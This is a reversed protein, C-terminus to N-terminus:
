FRLSIRWTEGMIKFEKKDAAKELGKGNPHCDNCAKKGGFSKQDNFLTKGREEPLHKKAFAVSFTLGLIILLLLSVKMIKM